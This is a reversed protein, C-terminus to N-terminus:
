WAEEYNKDSIRGFSDDSFININEPYPAVTERFLM